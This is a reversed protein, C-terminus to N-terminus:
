VRGARRDCIRSCRHYEGGEQQCCIVGRARRRAKIWFAELSSYVVPLAGVPASQCVWQFIRMKERRKQAEKREYVNPFIVTDHLVVNLQDRRLSECGAAQTSILNRAGWPM